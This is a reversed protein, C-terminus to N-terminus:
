NNNNRMRDFFNPDNELIREISEMNQKELHKTYLRIGISICAIIIIIIWITSNFGNDKKQNQEEM